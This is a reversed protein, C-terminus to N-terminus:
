RQASKMTVAVIHGEEMGLMGIILELKTSVCITFESARRTREYLVGIWTGLSATGCPVRPAPCSELEVSMPTNIPSAFRWDYVGSLFTILYMLHASLELVSATLVFLALGFSLCRCSPTMLRSSRSTIILFTLALRRTDIPHGTLSPSTSM